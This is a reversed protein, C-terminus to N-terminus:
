RNVFYQGNHLLYFELTFMDIFEEHTILGCNLLKSANNYFKIFSKKM